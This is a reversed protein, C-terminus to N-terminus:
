HRSFPTAIESGASRCHLPACLIPLILQVVKSDQHRGNRTLNLWDVLMVGRERDVPTVGASQLPM